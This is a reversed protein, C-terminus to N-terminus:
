PVIVFTDVDIRAHGRTGLNVVSVRHPGSTPWSRAYVLWRYSASSRHTNVNGIHVGDVWIAAMGRGPGKSMVIGVARGNFTRTLRAGRNQSHLASGGSLFSRREFTWGGKRTLTSSTDQWLAPAFAASEKWDSWNGAPDQARVRLTYSSGIGMTRNTTRASSSAGFPDKLGGDVRWRLQYAGIGGADAGAPWVGTAAVGSSALQTGSHLRMAPTSITPAVSDVRIPFASAHEVTGDTATVGISFTGSGTGAPVTFALNTTPASGGVLTTSDLHAGFPAGGDISVNVSGTYDEAAVLSVPVRMTAGAAGVLAGSSAGPTADLTWDGLALIHSVDLLPEHITDPDTGTKWDLTGAARLATRVQAPTALPRSAKYLAAAGAVHPAAMSTGSMYGYRNGPLTSYICKGPAILDVDSGFNSFDAFTDDQDYGGWSYCLPGGTGGSKGDTDALASVTIVEDYSAPKLNSASYHNNGAAAVVTVGAAVVRCVAKHMVDANTYGCNGDDKGTKAVSMNVAEILPRSPDLPDRQSAIWDLGCVYWSLLGV